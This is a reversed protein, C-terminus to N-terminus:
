VLYGANRLLTEHAPRRVLLANKGAFAELTFPALRVDEAFANRVGFAQYGEPFLRLFGERTGVERALNRSVELFITPSMSALTLPLGKLVEREFGEVDIKMLDIREVGQGRLFTDGNMVTLTQGTPANDPSFGAVFSGTGTNATIPQFYQLEQDAAGLGVPFVRVNTVRNLRLKHELSTVLAPSPEFALVEGLQSMFLTHHGVNAGVDCFVFGAESTAITRFLNLAGQEYGGMYYVFSDIYTGTHGPYTAGFFPEQFGRDGIRFLRRAERILRYRLGPHIRTMRGLKRLASDISSHQNLM